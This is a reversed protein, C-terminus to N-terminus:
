NGGKIARGMARSKADYQMAERLDEDTMWSIWVAVITLVIASILVTIFIDM